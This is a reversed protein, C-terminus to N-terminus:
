FLTVKTYMCYTVKLHTVGPNTKVELDGAKLGSFKTLYDTVVESAHIAVYDDIFPDSDFERLVSLRGLSFAPSMGQYEYKKMHNNTCEFVVFEADLAVLEGKVPIEEPLLVKVPNSPATNKPATLNKLSTLVSKAAVNPILQDSVRSYVLMCPVKWAKTLDLVDQESVTHVIYDNFLYWQDAVKVFSVAHGLDTDSPFPYRVQVIMARLEFVFANTGDEENNYHQILWDSSQANFVVSFRAPLRKMARWLVFHNTSPEVEFVFTHPLYSLMRRCPFQVKQHCAQCLVFTNDVNLFQSISSHILQVFNTKPSLRLTHQFTHIERRHACYGCFPCIREESVHTGCMIDLMNTKKSKNKVPKNPIIDNQTEQYLHEYLFRNFRFIRELTSMSPVERQLIGLGAAEKLRNLTRLLNSAVFTNKKYVNDPKHLQDLMGFLFGFECSLCEPKPCSHNIFSNRLSPSLHYLIQVFCNVYANSVGFNELGILSTKNFEVFGFEQFNKVTHSLAAQENKQYTEPIINLKANPYAGNVPAVLGDEVRKLGPNVAKGYKIKSKVPLKPYGVNKMIDSHIRAPPQGVTSRMNLPWDSLLASYAYVPIASLPLTGDIMSEKEDLTLDNEHEMAPMDLMQSYNNVLCAISNDENQKASNTWIHVFGATDGFALMEGSGSMSVSQVAHGQIDLQYVSDHSFSTKDAQIDKVDFYGDQSVIALMSSFLPHFRLFAPGPPFHMQTLLRNTRLDFCKVVTDMYFEGYRNSYGCTVLFDGKIDIDSISGTHADFKHEEKLTRSDRISMEGLVGACALINPNKYELRCIGQSLTDSNKILKQTVVDYMYLHTLNGALVIKNQPLTECALLQNAFVTDNAYHHKVLGGRTTVKFGNAGLSVMYQQQQQSFLKLEKIETAMTKVSSYKSYDPHNYATVRGAADGIWLLEHTADFLVSNGVQQHEVLSYSLWEKDVAKYYPQPKYPYM